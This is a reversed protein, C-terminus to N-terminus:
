GYIGLQNNIDTRLQVRQSPSYTKDEKGLKRAIARAKVIVEKLIPVTLGLHPYKSPLGTEVMERYEAGYVKVLGKNYGIINGSNFMNDKMSQKHVNHLNFRLSANAGVSHYHGGQEKGELRGSSICPQGKDILRAILNIVKQLDREYDSKTKVKEKMAAKDLKWKTKREKEVAKKAKEALSTRGKSQCEEDPCYPFNQWKMEFRIGCSKCKRRTKSIGKKPKPQKVKKEPRRSSQNTSYPEPM